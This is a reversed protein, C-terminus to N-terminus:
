NGRGGGKLDREHLFVVLLAGILHFPPSVRFAMSSLAPTALVVPAVRLFRRQFHNYPTHFNTSCFHPRCDRAFSLFKNAFAVSGPKASGAGWSRSQPTLSARFIGAWLPELHFLNLALTTPHFVWFMRASLHPQRAFILYCKNKIM